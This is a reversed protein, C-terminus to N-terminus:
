LTGALFTQGGNSAPDCAPPIFVGTTPKTAAHLTGTPSPTGSSVSGRASPVFHGATYTAVVRLTGASPPQGGNSTPHHTLLLPNDQGIPPWLRFPKQCPYSRGMTHRIVPRSLPPPPPPQGSKVISGSRLSKVSSPCGGNSLFVSQPSMGITAALLTGAGGGSRRRPLVGQGGLEHARANCSNWQGGGGPPTTTYHLLQVVWQGWATLRHTAPTGSGLAGLCYPLTNISNCQGGGGPPSATRPLGRLFGSGMRGGHVPSKKPYGGAVVGCFLLLYVHVMRGRKGGRHAGHRCM